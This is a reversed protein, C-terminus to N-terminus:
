AVQMLYAQLAQYDPFSANMFAAGVQCDEGLPAARSTKCQVRLPRQNQPLAFLTEFPHGAEGGSIERLCEDSASLLLGGLSVNCITAPYTVPESGCRTVFAPISVDKRTWRRRDKDVGLQQFANKKQVHNLILTEILSSLSRKEGDAITKLANRLRSDTRFCVTVEKRVEEGGRVAKVLVGAKGRELGGPTPTFYYLM